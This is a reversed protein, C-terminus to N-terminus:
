GASKEAVYYMEVAGLNKVELLGRNVFDFDNRILEYTSASINVRGPECNQEM